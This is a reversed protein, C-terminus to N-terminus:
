QTYDPQPTTQKIVTFNCLYLSLPPAIGGETQDAEITQRTRARLGGFVEGGNKGFKSILHVKNNYLNM